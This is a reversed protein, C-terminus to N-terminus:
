GKLIDDIYDKAEQPNSYSTGLPKDQNNKITWENTRASYKIVYGRHNHVRKVVENM